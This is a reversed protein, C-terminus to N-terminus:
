PRSMFSALPDTPFHGGTVRLTPFMALEGCAPFRQFYDTVLRRRLIRWQGSRKELEDLYRVGAVVDTPSDDIILSHYNLGYSESRASTSSRLEILINAVTHVTKMERVLAMAFDLFAPLYGQFAEGRDDYADPWYASSLIERDRRDVGRCYTFLVETIAQKDTIDRISQENMMSVKENTHGLADGLAANSM